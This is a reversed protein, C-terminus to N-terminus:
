TSACVPNIPDHLSLLKIPRQTPHCGVLGTTIAWRPLLSLAHAVLPYGLSTDHALRASPQLPGPEVSQYDDHVTAV